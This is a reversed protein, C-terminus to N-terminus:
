SILKEKALLERLQKELIDAEFSIVEQTFVTIVFDHTTKVEPLLHRIIEYIRRRVRNRKVASKHVKKSVVIAFRSHVRKKNEIYNLGFDRTRQKSGHNYVFRLSGHGHFRNRHSLM